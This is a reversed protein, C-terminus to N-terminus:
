RRPAAKRRSNPSYRPTLPISTDAPLRVTTKDVGVIKDLYQYVTLLLTNRETLQDRFQSETGAAGRQSKSLASETENLKGKFTQLDSEQHKLSRQAHDLKEAINLRAQTQTALQSSLERNEIHLNDIITEKDRIKDEKNDLDARCRRLDDELRQVDRELRDSQLQLAVFDTSHTDGRTQADKHAKQLDDYDKELNDLDVHAKNLQDLASQLTAEKQDLSRKEKRLDDEHKRVAVDYERKIKQQEKRALDLEEVIDNVHKAL